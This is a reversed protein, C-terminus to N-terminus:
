EEIAEGFEYTFHNRASIMLRSGTSKLVDIVTGMTDTKWAQTGTRADLEILGVQAFRRGIGYLVFVHDDDALPLARLSDTPGSSAYDYAWEVSGDKLSIRSLTTGGTWLYARDLNDLTLSPGGAYSAHWAVHGSADLADLFMTSFDASYYTALVRGDKLFTPASPEDAPRAYSWIKRGTGPDVKEVTHSTTLYTSGDPGFSVEFWEGAGAAVTWAVHGSDHSLRSASHVDLTVDNHVVYVRDHADVVATETNSDIDHSWRVHGTRADLLKVPSPGTRLEQIAVSHSTSGLELLAFYGGPAVDAPRAFTYTWLVRGRGREVATLSESVVSSTAADLKTTPVLVYDGHAPCVLGYPSVGGPIATSWTRRGSGPDIGVLEAGDAVVLIDDYLCQPVVQPSTSTLATSWRDKGDNGVHALSTTGTASTDLGYLTKGDAGVMLQGPTQWVTTGSPVHTTTVVAEAVAGTPETPETSGGVAASCGLMSGSVLVCTSSLACVFKTSGM